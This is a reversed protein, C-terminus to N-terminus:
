RLVTTRSALPCPTWISAFALPFLRTTKRQGATKRSCSSTSTPAGVCSAAQWGHTSSHRRHGRACVCCLYAGPPDCCRLTRGCHAPSSRGRRTQTLKMPNKAGRLHVAIADLNKLTPSPRQMTREPQDSQTCRPARLLSHICHHRVQILSNSYM